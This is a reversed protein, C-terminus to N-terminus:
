CVFMHVSQHCFYNYTCTCTSRRLRRGIVSKGDRREVKAEEAAMISSSKEGGDGVVHVERVWKGVWGDTQTSVTHARVM